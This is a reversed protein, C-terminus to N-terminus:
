ILREMFVQKSDARSVGFRLGRYFSVAQPNDARITALLKRFGLEGAATLTAGGLTRGVGRRHASLAVFTSIEGVTFEQTMATYCGARIIPNLLAVISEADEERVPRITCNM